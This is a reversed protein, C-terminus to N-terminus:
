EFGTNVSCMHSFMRFDHFTHHKQQPPKLRALSRAGHAHQHIFYRITDFNNESWHEWRSLAAHISYSALQRPPAKHASSSKQRVQRFILLASIPQTVSINLTVYILNVSWLRSKHFPHTLTLIVLLWPLWSGINSKAVCTMSLINIYIAVVTIKFLLERM